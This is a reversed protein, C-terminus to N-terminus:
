RTNTTRKGENPYLYEIARTMAHIVYEDEDFVFINSKQSINKSTTLVIPLLESCGPGVIMISLAADITANSKRTMDQMALALAEGYAKVVIARNGTVNM